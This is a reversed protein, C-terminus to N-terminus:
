EYLWRSIFRSAFLDGHKELLDARSRLWKAIRRRGALSMKNADKITVIAASKAKKKAAVDNERGKIPM